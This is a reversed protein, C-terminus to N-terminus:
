GSFLKLLADKFIFTSILAAILILLIILLIIEKTYSEGRPKIKSIENSLSGSNSFVAGSEINKKIAGSDQRINVKQNSIPQSNIPQSNVTTETTKEQPIPQQSIKQINIPNGSILSNQTPMVLREDPRPQFSYVGGSVLQAAENVDKPNYGSNIALQVAKELPEGNDVANKLSTLIDENVM